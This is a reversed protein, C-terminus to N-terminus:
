EKKNRFIGFCILGIGFMVFTTPEPTESFDQVYGSYTLGFSHGNRQSVDFRLSNEGQVLFSGIDISGSTQFLCGPVFDSCTLYNNGFSSAESLVLINNIFVSTSDDAMVRLNGGVPTGALYFSDFFSVTLNNPPVVYNPNNPNGTNTYSVWSPAAAWAPHPEIALTQGFSNFENPDLATGLSSLELVSASLTMMSMLM